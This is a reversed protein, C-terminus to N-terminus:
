APSKLESGGGGSLPEPAAAAAAATAAPPQLASATATYRCSCSLLSPSADACPLTVPSSGAYTGAAHSPVQLMAQYM